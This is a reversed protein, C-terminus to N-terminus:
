ASSMATAVLGRLAYSSEISTVLGRGLFKAYSRVVRSRTRLDDGDCSGNQV